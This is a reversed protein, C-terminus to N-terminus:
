KSRRRPAPKPARSPASKPAHRKLWAALDSKSKFDFLALSLAQAQEVPLKKLRAQVPAGLDGFRHALQLTVATALGQQLGTQRGEQLGQQWGEEKAMREITSVYPMSRGEEFEYVEQKLDQELGPPLRMVWDMFRFLNVIEQRHFGRRYLDFVLRRKWEFRGRNDGATEMAKLQAMVVRAFPNDSAALEDWRPAYDVVRVCPFKFDHTCGWRGSTYHGAAGPRAGTLVALSVVEARHAYMLRYNYVFVRKTFAPGGRGQVEIHILLWTERGDRLWVKFLKDALLRGTSEAPRIEALEKDLSEYGRAWDIEDQVPPFFFALFLPLYDDLMEKWASDHDSRFAADTQAAKAV